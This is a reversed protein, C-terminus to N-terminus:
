NPLKADCLWVTIVKGEYLTKQSIKQEELKM